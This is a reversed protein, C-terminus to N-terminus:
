GRKNRMARVLTPAGAGGRSLRRYDESEMPYLAIHGQADYHVGWGYRKPLPSARLCPHSKSFFAARIADGQAALVDEPIAKHRVQVAFLLSEHTYHYPNQSLLEYQIVPVTQAEGRATPVVGARVPCDEAVLIFTGRYSM